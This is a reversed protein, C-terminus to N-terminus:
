ICSPEEPKALGVFKFWEDNGSTSWNFNHLAPCRDDHVDVGYINIGAVTITVNLEMDVPCSHRFETGTVARVVDGVKYKIHM